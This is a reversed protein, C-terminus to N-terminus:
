GLFEIIAKSIALAMGQIGKKSTLYEKDENNSFFGMEILVSPASEISNRLVAFNGYKVGRSKYNLKKIIKDLLLSFLYSKKLNNISKNKVGEQVYIEMGKAYDKQNHNCHISIFLDAKYIKTFLSRKELPIFVDKERTLVVEIKPAFDKLYLQVYKAVFLNIDKEFIENKTRTGSDHAGHGSDLIVIYERKLNEIEVQSFCITSWTFFIFLIRM